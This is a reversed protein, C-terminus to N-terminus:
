ELEAILWGDALRLEPMVLQSSLMPASWGYCESEDLILEFGLKRWFRNRRSKNESTKADDIALYIPAVPMEPLNKAWNLIIAM